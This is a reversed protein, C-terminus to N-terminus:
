AQQQKFLEAYEVTQGDKLNAGAKSCIMGVIILKENDGWDLEKSQSSLVVGPAEGQRGEENSDLTHTEDVSLYVVRGFENYYYDFFPSEPERLYDFKGTANLAPLIEIKDGTIRGIPHSNTPKKLYVSDSSRHKFEYDTCFDVWADDVLLSSKRFYNSPLDGVGNVFNIDENDKLRRITDTMEQGEEYGRFVQRTLELSSVRLLHSFEDPTIAKGSEEENLIFKTLQYLFYNDM